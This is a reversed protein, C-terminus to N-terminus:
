HDTVNTGTSTSNSYNLNTPLGSNMSNILTVQWGGLLADMFYSSNGGFHRGHGYPLDYILATTNNLPQDYNSRGYDSSPNAFNVRSNDGNSTELHGASLDFTRSWTFSNLLYLGNGYRKEVKFQFANYNSSGGGYAIEIDGFNQVPRRSALSAKCNAALAATCIAAQNYDALIQLHRGTNGVYALDMVVQAPLQHQVSLHYSQVYGTRTNKPIYRSTM